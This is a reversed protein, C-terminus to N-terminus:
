RIKHIGAPRAPHGLGPDAAQVSPLGLHQAQVGRIATGGATWALGLCLQRLCDFKRRPLTRRQPQDACDQIPNGSAARDMAKGLCM